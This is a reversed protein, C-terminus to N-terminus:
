VEIANLALECVDVKNNKCITYALKMQSDLLKAQATDGFCDIASDEPHWVLDQKALEVFWQKVADVTKYKIIPTM